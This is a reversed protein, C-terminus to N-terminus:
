PGILGTSGRVDSIRGQDDLTLVAQWRRRVVATTGGSQKDCWLYAVSDRGQRCLFGNRGLIAQASDSSVGLPIAARLHRNWATSDDAGHTITRDPRHCALLIGSLVLWQLVQQIM